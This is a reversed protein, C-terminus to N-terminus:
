KLLSFFYEQCYNKSLFFKNSWNLCVEKMDGTVDKFTNKVWLIKLKESLYDHTVSKSKIRQEVLKGFTELVESVLLFLSPYFQPV